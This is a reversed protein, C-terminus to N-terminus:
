KISQKKFSLFDTYLEESVDGAKLKAELEELKAALWEEKTEVMLGLELTTKICTRGKSFQQVMDNLHADSYRFLLDQVFNRRLWLYVKHGLSLAKLRRTYELKM